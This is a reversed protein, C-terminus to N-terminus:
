KLFVLFEVPIGDPDKMYFFAGDREDRMLQPGSLFEIGEKEFHSAMKFIDDGQRGNLCVQAYGFDGWRTGFPLSRGRPAVVEFLEIMGEAKSSQLVCSRVKTNQGGSVDDVHESFSEHSRIFMADFGAVNQYFSMSRKLDTVSVGVWLVGGFRDQVTIKPGSFFEIMNGEPDRCYVFRSEGFDPIMVSKPESCFDITGKFEKFVNEVDSVAITMKALGIDGYRFDKRIPRPVPDVMQVLEVIIGGASQSFLIAAYRPNPSRVVEHLAPYEAAPFDVFLNDFSLVDQYFAKMRELNKVGIAIHHVGYGKYM